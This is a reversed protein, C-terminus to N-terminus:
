ARRARVLLAVCRTPAARPRGSAGPRRRARADDAVGVEHEEVLRRGAEVRLRAAVRPVHDLAQAVEALRHQQRGVVHVLRLVEGVPERDQAVAEDDRLAGRCLERLPRPPVTMRNRSGSPTSAAGITWAMPMSARPTPRAPSAACRGARLVRQVEERAPGFLRLTSSCPMSTLRGVRSSTKRSSVPSLPAPPPSPEPSPFARSPPAGHAVDREHHALTEEAQPAPEAVRARHHEGDHHRHHQQHQEVRHEGALVARRPELAGVDVEGGVERGPDDGVRDHEGSEAAQQDRQRGVALAPQQLAVAACGIGGHTNRPPCIRWVM